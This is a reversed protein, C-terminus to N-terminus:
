ELMFPWLGYLWFFLFQHIPVKIGKKSCILLICKFTSVTFTNKFEYFNTINHSSLHPIQTKFMNSM